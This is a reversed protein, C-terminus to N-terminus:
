SLGFRRLFAGAGMNSRLRIHAPEGRAYVDLLVGVGGGDQMTREVRDNPVVRGNIELARGTVSAAAATAQLLVMSTLHLQGIEKYLEDVLARTEANGSNGSNGLAGERTSGMLSYCYDVQVGSAVISESAARMCGVIDPAVPGAVLHALRRFNLNNIVKM